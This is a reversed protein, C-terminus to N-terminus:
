PENIRLPVTRKVRIGLTSFYACHDINALWVPLRHRLAVDAYEPKYMPVVQFLTGVESQVEQLFRETSIWDFTRPVEFYRDFSQKYVHTEHVAVKPIVLRRGLVRALAAATPILYLEGALGDNPQYLLFRDNLRSMARVDSATSLERM